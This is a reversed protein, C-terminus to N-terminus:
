RHRPRPSSRTAPTPGRSSRSSYKGAADTTTTLGASKFGATFPHPNSQLHVVVGGNKPGTVQGAIVSSRGFRIVTPVASITVANAAPGPPLTYQSALTTFTRDDGQDRGSPNTAVLRFRYLTGPSLGTVTVSVEKGANGSVATQPPTTAGYGATTGYEFVYTTDKKNPNVVGNLTATTATM